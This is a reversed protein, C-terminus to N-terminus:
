NAPNHLCKTLKKEEINCEGDGINVLIPCTTPCNNGECEQEVAVSFEGDKVSTQIVPKRDNFYNIFNDQNTADKKPTVFVKAKYLFRRSSLGSFAITIM